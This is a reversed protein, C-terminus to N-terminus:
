RSRDYLVKGERQATGMLSNRSSRQRTAEEPTLVVVDMPWTRPTFLDDVTRIREAAPLESDMIVLLDIDSDARDDGRARSGFLIIERPDLAAVIRQAIEQVSLAQMTTNPSQMNLRREIM